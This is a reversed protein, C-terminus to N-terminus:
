GDSFGERIIAKNRISGNHRSEERTGTEHPDLDSKSYFSCFFATLALATGLSYFVLSCNGTTRLSWEKLAPGIAGSLGGATMLFGFISGIYRTGFTDAAFAPMTAIGGFFCFLIYSCVFPFILPDHIFPLAAVMPASTSLILLYIMKCGSQDSLFAWVISGTSAALLIFVMVTDAITENLRLQSQILPSFSGIIAVGASVNVLFAIWLIFLQDKKVATTLPISRVTGTKQRILSIPSAPNRPPNTMKFSAPVWVLMCSFGLLYFAHGLGIQHVLIPAMHGSFAFSMGFAIALTGTIFGKKEPFWKLLVSITTVYSMGSGFGALVGYGVSFLLKSDLHDAMGSLILGATLFVASAPFIKQPTKRDAFPGSIAAAIGMFLLHLTCALGAELGTWSRYAMFPNKLACWGLVTGLTMQILVALFAIFYRTRYDFNSSM